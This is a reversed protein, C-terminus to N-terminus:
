FCFSYSTPYGDLLDRVMDLRSAARAIENSVLNDDKKNNTAHVQYYHLQSGWLLSLTDLDSDIGFCLHFKNGVRLFKTLMLFNSALLRWAHWWYIWWTGLALIAHFITFNVNLVWLFLFSLKRCKISIELLFSLFSCDIFYCGWSPDNHGYGVRWDMSGTEIICIWPFSEFSRWHSIHKPIDFKTCSFSLVLQIM